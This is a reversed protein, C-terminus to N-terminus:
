QKKPQILSFSFVVKPSKKKKIKNLKRYFIFPNQIEFIKKQQIQKMLGCKFRKNWCLINDCFSRKFTSVSPIDSASWGHMGEIFIPMLKLNFNKSIIKNLGYGSIM